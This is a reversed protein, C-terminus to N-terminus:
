DRQNASQKHKKEWSLAAGPFSGTIGELSVRPASIIKDAISSCSPCTSLQKYETYQESIEKCERCQFEFLKKLKCSRM